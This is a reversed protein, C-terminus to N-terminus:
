QRPGQIIDVLIDGHFVLTKLFTGPGLSYEWLYIPIVRRTEVGYGPQPPSPYPSVPRVTQEIFGDQWAQRPEGCVELVRSQSDGTNVVYRGCRLSNDAVATAPGTVALLVILVLRGYGRM